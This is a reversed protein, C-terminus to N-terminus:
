GPSTTPSAAAAARRRRDRRPGARRRAEHAARAARAGDPPRLDGDRAPERRPARGAAAGAAARCRGARCCSATAFAGAASTPAWGTAAAPPERLSRDGAHAARRAGAAGLDGAAGPVGDHLARAPRGRGVSVSLLPRPRRARRRQLAHPVRGGRLPPGADAAGDARRPAILGALVPLRGAALMRDVVAVSAADFQLVCIMRAATVLDGHRGRRRGDRRRHRGLAARRRACAHRRRGRRRTALPGPDAGRLARAYAELQLTLSRVLPHAGPTLRALAGRARGASVTRGALRGGASRIEVLEHHPRNTACEIQVEARTTALVLGARERTANARVALPLSGTLFLALDVLHPALDLLADDGRAVPRWSDRRYHLVMKMTLDGGPPVRRILECARTSAGTSPSGRRRGCRRSGCRATPTPRRRSRSSRRWAPRRPSRPSRRTSSPRRASSSATSRAGRRAARRRARARLRRAEGRRHRPAHSRPRRGRRVRRGAGRARRGRLRARRPARLRRSRPAAARASM